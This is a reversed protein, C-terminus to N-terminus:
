PQAGAPNINEGRLLISVTLSSVRREQGAGQCKPSQEESVIVIQEGLGV